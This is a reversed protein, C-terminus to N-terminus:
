KIKSVLHEEVFGIIKLKCEEWYEDDQEYEIQNSEENLYEVLTCKKLGSLFMYTELQVREYGRLEMFLYKTRNKIEIIGDACIGDVKGRINIDYLGKPDTYLIKQFLKSNRQGIKKGIAHQTTNLLKNERFNGRRMRLDHKICTNLQQTTDTMKSDLKQKSEEETLKTSYSESVYKKNIAYVMDLVNTKPIKLEERIKALEEEPLSLLKEELNSKPIYINEIKNTSLIKGVIKSVPDFKNDGTLKALDSAAINIRKVM